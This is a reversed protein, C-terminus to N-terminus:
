GNNDEPFVLYHWHQYTFLSELLISINLEFELLDYDAVAMHYQHIASYTKYRRFEFDGFDDIEGFIYYKIRYYEKLYQLDISIEPITAEAM